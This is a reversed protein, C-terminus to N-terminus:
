APVAVVGAREPLALCFGVSDAPGGRAAAVSSIDVTLFYTGETTFVDFGARELYGAFLHGYSVKGNVFVLAPMYLTHGDPEARAVTTLAPIGMAGGQNDIVVPQKLIDALKTMVLRATADVGGGAAFPVILTIPKTPYSQALAAGSMLGLAAAVAIVKKFM